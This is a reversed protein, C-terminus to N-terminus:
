AEGPAAARSERADLFVTRLLACFAALVLLFSIAHGSEWQRRYSAWDAPLTEPTWAAVAANVPANFLFFAALAGTLCAAALLMLALQPRRRREGYVPLWAAVAAVIELPGLTPGWERYLNQQIALWLPGDLARKNPLEFVHAALAGLAPATALLAIWRL